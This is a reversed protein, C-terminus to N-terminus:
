FTTGLNFRFSETADTEAKTIPKSFSFSLPGIPSILDVALGTASRVTNGQDVKKSYDVHWVNAADFFVSFNVNDFTPFLFPLTTSANFSAMYNGGVYDAGDKPGVKGSEFGRLKQQPLFLRKSVRVDTNSKLSTVARTYLGLTLVAEDFLETYNTIQYGNVMAHGNSVVPLEQVITSVYGKTPRYRSNLDSYSLSYNFLMDFYSGEQKKYNESANATTKLDENAISLNPSFYLNEYQEFSTGLSIKNLSSKFGYDKEKDTSTSQISTTVARDSYAFHPDTYSFKGTLSEPSININFDLKVGQGNFNNEKIGVMLSSGTTGYGAGALIEGTPKEEVTIDIIKLGETSGDITKSEVSKFINSSKIKNISKNHLLKNFPDGEDVLLKQRIFKEVTINNGKINIREVYFKDGEKINFIFDIKNNDVVTEIVSADIFEYNETVAIKDIEDLISDIKEYSYTSNELKKFVKKLESFRKIDYDDPIKIDFTNFKFKLGSDIKYTLIFDEKNVVQTYVDEVNVQYYGRDLYFNKILRKDLSTRQKDLYKKKSLFKWFKAEESTIVSLLKSSKFKKDGIFKIQKISAKEGMDVNFTLNITDNSNIKKEVEVTSFYYGAMRLSNLIVNLDKQLIFENFSSKPKLLIKERLASVYKKAKIGVFEIDQIIPYEIVNINLIKNEIKLDVYEFFNTKYINKLGENLEFDSLDSGKKLKSFNIITQSSVRDNGTINFDSFVEAFTSTSLLFLAAVSRLLNKFM